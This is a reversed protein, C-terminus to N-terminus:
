FNVEKTNWIGLTGGFIEEFMMLLTLLRDREEPELHHWQKTLVKNLDAKEYKADFIRRM